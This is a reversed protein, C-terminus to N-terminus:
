RLCEQVKDAIREVLNQEDSETQVLFGGLNTIDRFAVETLASKWALLRKSDKEQVKEFAASYRQQQFSNKQYRVDSPEVDCFLPCVVLDKSKMCEHIKAVEDLCASSFVYRPSFFIVAVNVKEIIALRSRQLEEESAQSKEGNAPFIKLGHEERRLENVLSRSFAHDTDAEAISLFVSYRFEDDDEGGNAM